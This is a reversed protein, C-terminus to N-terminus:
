NSNSASQLDSHIQAPGGFQSVNQSALRFKSRNRIASCSMLTKHVCCFHRTGRKPEGISGDEIVLQQIPQDHTRPHDCFETQHVYHYGTTSSEVIRSDCSYQNPEGFSSDCICTLVFAPSKAISFLNNYPKFQIRFIGGRGSLRNCRTLRQVLNRGVRGIIPRVQARRSRCPSYGLGFM